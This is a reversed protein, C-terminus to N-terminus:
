TILCEKFFERFQEDVVPSWQNYVDNCAKFSLMNHKLFITKQHLLRSMKWGLYSCGDKTTYLDSPAQHCVVKVILISSCIMVMLWKFWSNSLAQGSLSGPKMM